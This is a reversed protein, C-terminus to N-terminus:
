RPERFHTCVNDNYLTKVIYPRKLCANQTDIELMYAQFKTSHYRLNNLFSPYYMCMRIKVLIEEKVLICVYILKFVYIKVRKNIHRDYVKRKKYDKKNEEKWM